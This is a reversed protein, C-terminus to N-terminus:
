RLPSNVLGNFHIFLMRVGSSERLRYWGRCGKMNFLIIVHDDKWLPTMWLAENRTKRLTRMNFLASPRLRVDDAGVAERIEEGDISFSEVGCSRPHRWAM